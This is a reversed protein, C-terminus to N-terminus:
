EKNTLYYIQVGPKWLVSMIKDIAKSKRLSIESTLLVSTENGFGVGMVNYWIEDIQVIVSTDKPATSYFSATDNSGQYIGLTFQYVEIEDKSNIHVAGGSTPNQWTLYKKTTKMKFIEDKRKEAGEFSWFGDAKTSSNPCPLGVIRLKNLDISSVAVDTKQLITTSTDRTQSHASFLM